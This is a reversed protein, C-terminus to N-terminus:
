LTLEACVERRGDVIRESWEALRDVISLGRGGPRQEDPTLAVPVTRGRAGDLVRIRLRGMELRLAVSIWDGPGSGHTIANTVLESTVLLADARRAHEIGAEELARDLFSRAAAVSAPEAPLTEEREVRGVSGTM